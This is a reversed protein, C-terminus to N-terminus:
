PEEMIFRERHGRRPDDEQVMTFEGYEAPESSRRNRKSQLWLAAGLALGGVIITATGPLAGAVALILLTGGIIDLIVIAKSV